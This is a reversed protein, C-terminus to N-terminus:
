KVLHIYAERCKMVHFVNISNDDIVNYMVEILNASLDFGILLFKNEADPDDILDGDYCFTDIAKYVDDETLGHKFASPNFEIKINNDNSL